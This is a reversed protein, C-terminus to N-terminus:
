AVRRLTPKGSLREMREAIQEMRKSAEIFDRQLRAREDEPEVPVADAYGSERLLFNVASHCSAKRARKLLWLVQEPTFHERRDHNLCDAVWRGAQDIPMDPKLEHGIAKMGGLARIVDHLADNLSECFLAQQDMM